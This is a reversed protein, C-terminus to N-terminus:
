SIQDYSSRKQVVQLQNSLDIFESVSLDEPRRTLDLEIQHLITQPYLASLTNRLMKRRQGFTQRVIERFLGMNVVRSEADPLFDLSIIGSDVKPRPYFLHSPVTFLYKVQAYFQCFVSLIGFQKSGPPAAMRQAVEKQIMFVAQEILSTHDLTKFIIPSTIHYPLNGIIYKKREPYSLLLKKLDIELFDEQLVSLNAPNGLSSKLEHALRPDIEVSVLTDTKNLLQQTLIGTGAGIEIIIGSQQIELSDAIKAAINPDKLFNQSWKKRPRPYKQEDRM